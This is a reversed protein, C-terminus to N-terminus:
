AVDIAVSAVGDTQRISSTQWRHVVTASIARASSRAFVRRKSRSTRRSMPRDKRCSDDRGSSERSRAIRASAM